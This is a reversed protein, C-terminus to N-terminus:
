RLSRCNLLRVLSQWCMETSEDSSGGEAAVKAATERLCEDEMVERVKIGIEKAAVVGEEAEWAWGEPWVGLGRRAVLAANVRQDMMRPWALVRVGAAAAEMVSNWGCHSLFGAVARHGLVVEQEVWERVVLGRGEIRRVYGEGVLDEIEGTEERDVKTSKVVWLFRCGSMELGAGLERIQERPMTTRSGFSVYIM